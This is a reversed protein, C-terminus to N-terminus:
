VTLAGAVVVLGGISGLRRAPGGVRALPAAGALRVLGAAVLAGAAIFIVDLTLRNFDLSLNFFSAFVPDAAALLVAVLTAIPAAILAGRAVPAIMGIRHRTRVLPQIAFGSGNVSHEYAHSM